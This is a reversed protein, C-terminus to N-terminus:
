KNASPTRTVAMPGPYTSLRASYHLFGCRQLLRQSAINDTLSEGQRRHLDLDMFAIRILERLSAAGIGQGTHRQDIADAISASQFDGRIISNLHASGVLAGGSEVLYMRSGATEPTTESILLEQYASTYYQTPRIAEPQQVYVRNRTLLEALDHGDSEPSYGHIPAPLFGTSPAKGKGIARFSLM